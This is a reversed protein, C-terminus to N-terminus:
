RICFAILSIFRKFSSQDRAEETLFTRNFDAQVKEYEKQLHQKLREDNSGRAQNILKELGKKKEALEKQFDNYLTQGAKTENLAIRQDVVEKQLLVIDTRHRNILTEVIRWAGEYTNPMLADVSAGQGIIAKWYDGKLQEVRAPGHLAADGRTWCTTTLVVQKLAMGGCLQEFTAVNKLLSGTIRNETIRHLYLLGSLKVHGEYTKKLWENILALIEYDTRTTDDFGPTDVLVVSRGGWKGDNSVRTAGIAVTASKASTKARQGVQQTLLDIFYSKGSGTPGMFAIVIDNRRVNAADVDEIQLPMFLGNHSSIAIIDLTTLIGHPKSPAWKRWQLLWNRELKRLDRELNEMDRQLAGLTEDEGSLRIDVRQDSKKLHRIEESREEVLQTLLGHLYQGSRTRPLSNHEIVMERQILMIQEHLRTQNRYEAEVIAHIIQGASELTQTFRCVTSGLIIMSSWSDQKLNQERPDEEEAAEDSLGTIVLIVRDCFDEGCLHRLMELNMLMVNPSEQPDTIPHMYIVGSIRPVIISEKPRYGNKGRFSTHARYFSTRNDRVCGKDM